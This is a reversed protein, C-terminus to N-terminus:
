YNSYMITELEDGAGLNYPECGGVVRAGLYGIGEEPRWPVRVCKYICVSVCM